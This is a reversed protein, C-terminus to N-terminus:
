HGTVLQRNLQSRSRMGVGNGPLPLIESKFNSIQSPFAFSLPVSLLIRFCILFKTRM